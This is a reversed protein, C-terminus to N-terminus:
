ISGKKTYLYLLAWKRKRGTSIYGIIWKSLNEICSPAPPQWSM